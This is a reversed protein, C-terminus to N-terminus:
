AFDGSVQICPGYAQTSNYFYKKTSFVSTNAM